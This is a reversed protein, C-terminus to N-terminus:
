FFELQRYRPKEGTDKDDDEINGKAKCPKKKRKKPPKEFTEDLEEKINRDSVDDNYKDPFDSLLLNRMMEEINGIENEIVKKLSLDNRKEALLLIKELRNMVKREPKIKFTKKKLMYEYFLFQPDNKDKALMKVIFAKVIDYEDEYCSDGKDSFCLLIIKKATERSCEDDKNKTAKLSFLKIRKQEVQLWEYKGTLSIYRIIEMLKLVTEADPKKLFETKVEVEIDKIVQSCADYTKSILLTFYLLSLRSVNFSQATQWAKNGVEDSGYVFELCAWRAFIYASGLNFSQFDASAIELARKYADRGVPVKNKMFHSKAILLYTIVLLEKTNNDLPDLRLAQELYKSAKFCVNRTLCAEGASVLIEKDKPFQQIMIDLLNNVNSNAETSEYVKLLSFYVDRDRRNYELSKELFKVASMSNRHQSKNEFGRSFLDDPEEMSMFIEGLHAYVLAELKRNEGHVKTYKEIFKEWSEVIFDDDFGDEIDIAAIRSILLGNLDNESNECDDILFRVFKYKVPEPIIFISTYFFQTLLAALSIGEIPFDPLKDSLYKYSDGYRGHRWLYDARSVSKAVGSLGTLTCAMNSAHYLEKDNLKELNGDDIILLFADAARQPVSNDPLIVFAGKAKIDDEKYFAIMGKIYLKWHSFISKKKINRIVDLADDFEERSVYELARNIASLDEALEPKSETLMSFDRFETVMMDAVKLIEVADLENENLLFHAVYEEAMDEANAQKITIQSQLSSKDFDPSLTKIYDIMTQAEFTCGTEIMQKALGKYCKILEPLYKEKDHRCLEKFADKARRFRENQLDEFAREELQNLPVAKNQNKNKKNKKNKEM